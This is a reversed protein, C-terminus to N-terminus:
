WLWLSIGALPLLMIALGQLVIIAEDPPGLQRGNHLEILYTLVADGSRLESEGRAFLVTGCRADVIVESDGRAPVLVKLARFVGRLKIVRKM